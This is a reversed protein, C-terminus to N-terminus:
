KQAAVTESETLPLFDGDTKASRLERCLRMFEYDAAYWERLNKIAEMELSTDLDRPNRHAEIDNEPLMIAAPLCLMKKLIEFDEDLTEQFGIFLIDSLRSLFYPESKFWDWYSTRVHMIAKMARLGAKRTRQNESSLALALENPTHFQRFASEEGFSWKSLYRPQGKRKRSYFGSVFRAIPDRVFFVVKDGPPVDMLTFFHPHLEITYEAAVSGARLASKAATGGTKGIHLFHIITKGRARHTARQLATERDLRLKLVAKLRRLRRVTNDPLLIELVQGFSRM